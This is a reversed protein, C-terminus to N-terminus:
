HVLSPSIPCSVPMTAATLIQDMAVSYGVIEARLRAVEDKMQVQWLLKKASSGFVKQVTARAANTGLHSEDRRTKAKFAELSKRCQEITTTANTFLATL